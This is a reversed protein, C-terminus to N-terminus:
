ADSRLACVAAELSRFRREMHGYLQSCGDDPEAVKDAAPPTKADARRAKAEKVADEFLLGQGGKPSQQQRAWCWYAKM